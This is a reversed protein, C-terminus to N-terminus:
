EAADAFAEARRPALSAVYWDIARALGSDVTHTPKYGLRTEIKSIDARSFRVDGARFDRYVPAAAKFGPQHRALENCLAAHLENLTTSGGVAV